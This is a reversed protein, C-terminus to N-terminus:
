KPPMRRGVGTIGTEDPRASYAAAPLDVGGQSVGVAGWAGARRARAAIGHRKTRGAKLAAHAVAADVLDAGVNRGSGPIGRELGVAADRNSGVPLEYGCECSHPRVKFIGPRQCEHWLSKKHWSGQGVFVCDTLFLVNESVRYSSWVYYLLDSERSLLTTM